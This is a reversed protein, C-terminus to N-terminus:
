VKLKKYEEYYIKILKQYSREKLFKKFIIIQSYNQMERLKKYSINSFWSLLSRFANNDSPHFLKGNFNDKVLDINGGVKTALIANGSAMSEQLSLSLGESFSPLCFIDSIALLELVSNRDLFGFFKIKQNKNAIKEIQERLDGDGAILLINKGGCAKLFELALTNVNKVDVLRGIYAFVRYDLPINWKKRLYSKKKKLLIIKRFEERGISSCPVILVKRPSWKEWKKKIASSVAIVRDTYKTIMPELEKDIIKKRKKWMFNNKELDISFGCFKMSIWRFECNVFSFFDRVNSNFLRPAIKKFERFSPISIMEQNLKTTNKLKLIFVLFDSNFLASHVIHIKFKLIIKLLESARNLDWFDDNKFRSSFLYVGAKKLDDYVHNNIFKGSGESEFLYFNIKNKYKKSSYLLFSKLFEETGGPYSLDRTVILVNM